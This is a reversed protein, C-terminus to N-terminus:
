FAPIVLIQSKRVNISVVLEELDKLEATLDAILRQHPRRKCPALKRFKAM